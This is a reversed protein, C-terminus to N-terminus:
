EEFNFVFLFIVKSKKILKTYIIKIYENIKVSLTLIMIINRDMSPFCQIVIYTRCALLM